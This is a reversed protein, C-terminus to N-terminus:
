TASSTIIVPHWIQATRINSGGGVWEKLTLHKLIQLEDYRIRVTDDQLEQRVDDLPM